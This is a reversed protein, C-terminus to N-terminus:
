QSSSYEGYHRQRVIWRGDVYQSIEDYVPGPRVEFVICDPGKYVYKYVYKISKISSCIEVNIHCDYKLLLWPNYPVVWGNDVVVEGENDLAVSRHDNRRRYIPYSDNRSCYM